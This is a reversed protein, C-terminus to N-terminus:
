IKVWGTCSRGVNNKSTMSRCPQRPNPSPLKLDSKSAISRSCARRPFRTHAIVVREARDRVLPMGLKTLRVTRQVVFLQHPDMAEDPVLRQQIVQPGRGFNLLDFTAAFHLDRVGVRARNLM